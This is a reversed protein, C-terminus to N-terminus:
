VVSKRDKVFNKCLSTFIICMITCFLVYVKETLEEVNKVLVCLNNLPIFDNVGNGIQLLDISFQRNDKSSSVIRKNTKFECKMIHPWLYSRKLSTNVEDARTGRTM